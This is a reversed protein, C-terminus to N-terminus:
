ARTEGPWHNYTTNMREPYRELRQSHVPKPVQPQRGKNSANWMSPDSGQTVTIVKVPVKNKHFIVRHRVPTPTYPTVEVPSILMNAYALILALIAMATALWSLALVAVAASYAQWLGSFDGVLGPQRAARATVIISGVSSIVAMISTFLSYKNGSESKRRCVHYIAQAILVLVALIHIVACLIEIPGGSHVTLSLVYLGILLSHMTLLLVFISFRVYTYLFSM